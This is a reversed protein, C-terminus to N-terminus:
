FLDNGDDDKSMDRERHRSWKREISLARTKRDYYLEHSVTDIRGTASFVRKADPNDRKEGKAFRLNWLADPVEMLVSPGRSRSPDTHGAHTAILIEDIGAEQRLAELADLLLRAGPNDSEDTVGMAVLWPGVPDVFLIETGALERAWSARRRDDVIDFKGAQGRLPYWKTRKGTGIGTTDMWDSLMEESMELDIRSLHRAEDIERVEQGLFDSGDRLSKDLNNLATTKGVKYQAIANVLGGSPWYGNIRWLQDTGHLDEDWVGEPQEWTDEDARFIRKAEANIRLQRVAKEIDEQLLEEALEEDDKKRGTM